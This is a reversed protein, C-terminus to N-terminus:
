SAPHARITADRILDSAARLLSQLEAASAEIVYASSWPNGIVLAHHGSSVEDGGLETGPGAVRLPTEADSWEYRESV